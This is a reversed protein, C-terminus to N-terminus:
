RIVEDVDMLMQPPITFNFAKATKLNVVFEVATLQEVPLDSPKAGKLIRDVYYAARRHFHEPKIGYSMLGGAEAYTKDPLISPLHNRNALEALQKSYGVICLGSNITVANSRMEVIMRSLADFDQNSWQLQLQHLELGLGQAAREMERFQRRGGQSDLCGAVLVRSIQPFAEKLLEVRKGALEAQQSRLGTVNGGPHALNAALGGEVPDSMHAVVIPITRTAQQAALAPSTPAAVIVDVKVRVLEAALGSMQWPKGEGWRVEIVYNKGEIYGLESLGQRFAKLLPTTSAPFGGMLYGIRYVKTVQQGAQAARIGATSIAILVGLLIRKGMTKLGARGWDLDAVFIM